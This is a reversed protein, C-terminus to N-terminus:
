ARLLWTSKLSSNPAARLLHCFRRLAGAARAPFRCREPSHPHAPRWDAIDVDFHDAATALGSMEIQRRVGRRVARRASSISLDRSRFLAAPRCIAQQLIGPRAPAQVPTGGREIGTVRGVVEASSVPVDNRWRRDGRTVLYSEGAKETQTVVRHAILRGGRSFVVIEGPCVQDVAVSEVSLLDGPRIAPAMSTGSVRLHVRGFQCAVEAALDCATAQTADVPQAECAM